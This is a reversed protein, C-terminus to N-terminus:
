SIIKEDKLFKFLGEEGDCKYYTSNFMTRGYSPDRTDLYEVYFWEDDMLFIDVYFDGVYSIKVYNYRNSIPVMTNSFGPLLLGRIKEVFSDSMQISVGGENFGEEDVSWYLLSENFSKLYKM